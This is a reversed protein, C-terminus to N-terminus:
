DIAGELQRAHLRQVDRRPPEGFCKKYERNFYSVDNYGVRYAASTADLNEGLMLRRAEQLRLQKQFQLPSMGIAAKFHQHFSSVSMGIEQALEEIRFSQDLNERLRKIASAMNSSYGGSVMLHHLRAGQQHSMLRYVIERKILPMLIRAEEPSDILRVLRLVADLLEVDLACVDIARVEANNLPILHQAEVLVSSVLTPDLSLRLSLYPQQPSAELVQSARPLEMTALLYHIPDYQYRTNGVFVEKRGQAIVCLSPELVSHVRELPTSLRVLHLESLPEIIGDEVLAQGIREVLEERSAQLRQEDRSTQTHNAM